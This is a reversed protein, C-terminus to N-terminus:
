TLSDSVREASGSFSVTASSLGNNEISRNIADLFAGDDRGAKLDLMVGLGLAHCRGLATDLTFIREDTGEYVFEVLKAAPYDAVSGARDCAPRLRGDHFVVAVGDSSRRVDLEVMAYGRRAAEEIAALSCEPAEDAVVGGRHAILLPRRARVSAVDRLDIM